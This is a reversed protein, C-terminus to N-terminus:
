REIDRHFVAVPCIDEEKLIDSLRNAITVSRHKGGTCGIGIMLQRKGEAAYRPILFDMLGKLKELFQAADTGQCVYAQVAEENGTKHKLEEVYYPNPLFRVDFVLDADSPIGYKFGFSIVSVFMDRLETTDSFLRQMQETLQRVLLDSTDIVIDARQRLPELLEREKEIGDEIRGDGSLPHRRRSAKYRRIITDKDCDLFLIEHRYRQLISILERIGEGEAGRRYLGRVDLGLAVKGYEGSSLSSLEAFKDVLELPLNDVCFYGMDELLKLAATKGSGSLGTVIVFRM